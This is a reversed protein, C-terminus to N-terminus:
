KLGIKDRELVAMIFPGIVKPDNSRILENIYYDYDGSRNDKGGLGAVACARTINMLGEKDFEILEKVFGKYAKEAIGRYSADIYGM